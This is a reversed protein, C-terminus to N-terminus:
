QLLCPPLTLSDLVRGCGDAASAGNGAYNAKLLGVDGKDFDYWPQMEKLHEHAHGPRQQHRPQEDRAWPACPVPDKMATPDYM